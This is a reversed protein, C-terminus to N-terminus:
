TKLANDTLFAIGSFISKKSPRVDNWGIQPVKGSTFRAVKGKLIGLGKVGPSEESENFLAQMGVCIGFFKAGDNIAKVIADDLGRKRLNEMVSGFNGVGPFIIREAREVFEPDDSVRYRAGVYDLANCLSRVNGGGYDVVCVEMM